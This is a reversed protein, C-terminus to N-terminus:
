RSCSYRCTFNDRVRWSGVSRPTPLPTSLCNWETKVEARSPTLQWHWAGDTKDCPFLAPVWQLLLLIIGLFTKCLIFDRTGIPIEFVHLGTQLVTYSYGRDCIHATCFNSEELKAVMGKWYDTVFCVSTNQRSVTFNPLPWWGSPPESIQERGLVLVSQPPWIGM